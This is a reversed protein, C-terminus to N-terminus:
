FTKDWVSLDKGTPVRLTKLKPVEEFITGKIVDQLVPFMYNRTMLSTQAKPELLARVFKEGLECQNCTAPVAAYEVQIPHGEEFSLARYSRDKEDGWHFALSTVYSFVFRTQKKKFLGYSFAWSSSVSHVNPKLQNLFEGEGEGKVGKIWNVFQLGPSSARPDQLAIQKTYEPKLLDDIRKPETGEAERHIFTMWSWDFPVFTPRLEAKPEEFWGDTNISIERWAFKEAEPLILQDLGLVVDFAQAGEALKLRELLIGGDGGSVVEVECNCTAKFDAVIQGGPGHPSMFTSYTLIRLKPQALSKRLGESRSWNLLLSLGAILGVGVILFVALRSRM